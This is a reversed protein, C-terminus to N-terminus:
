DAVRASDYREPIYRFFEGNFSAAIVRGLSDETIGRIDNAPLHGDGNSGNSYHLQSAGDYRYIGAQTGIWLFGNRDQFISTIPRQEIINSISPSLLSPVAAYLAQSNTALLLSFIHLLCITNHKYRKWHM